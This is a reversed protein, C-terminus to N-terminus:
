GYVYIFRLPATVNLTSWNFKWAIDLLVLLYEHLKSNQSLQKFTVETYAASWIDSCEAFFYPLIVSRM